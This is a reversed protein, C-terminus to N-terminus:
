EPELEAPFGPARLDTGVAEELMKVVMPSQAGGGYIAGNSKVYSLLFKVARDMAGQPPKESRALATLALGTIAPHHRWSGDAEQQKLMWATGREQARAVEQLLSIDVQSPLEAAAAVGVFLTVVLSAILLRM